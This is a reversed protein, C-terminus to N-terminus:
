SIDTAVSDDDSAAGGGGDDDSVAVPVDIALICGIM